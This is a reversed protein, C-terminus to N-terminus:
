QLRALCVKLRTDYRYGSSNPSFPYFEPLGAKAEMGVDVEDNLDDKAGPSLHVVAFNDQSIYEGTEWVVNSLPLVNIKHLNM